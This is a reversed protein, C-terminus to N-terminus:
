ITIGMKTNKIFINKNCVELPINLESDIINKYNNIDHKFNIKNQNLYEDIITAEFLITRTSSKIKLDFNHIRSFPLKKVYKDQGCNCNIIIKCVSSSYFSINM